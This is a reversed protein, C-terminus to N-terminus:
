SPLASELAEVVKPVEDLHNPWHPAFRLYGDPSSVAVGSASLTELLDAIVVSQPLRCSLTGSRGSGQSARVSELGLGALHPELADHWQNVHAYIAEVGLGELADLAADLAANHVMSQMGGELMQAEQIFPRDYRLHGSGDFLFRLGEEHSLWSALRPEFSALREPAITLLGSGELGMMWKHCGAALYDIGLATVDLPMVGLAQIADVFLESGHRRCLEGIAELPMAYGTQFQVASIAVLRVGRRLEDEIQELLKGEDHLATHASLWVPELEFLRAAELWPTVNAPFEGEFLLVRDGSKWPLSMAVATMGQSTNSTFAVSTAETGLFGAVRARLAARIELTEHYHAMGKAAIRDVTSRIAERVPTSLPSIAAHNLYISAELEPFLARSGFVPESM